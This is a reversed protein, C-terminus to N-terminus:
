ANALKKVARTLAEIARDVEEETTRKGVSLRLTGMAYEQPVRMAALVHSISVSDAHCAAGPSVALTDRLETMLANAAVNRFSVSLTNPLGQEPHGNFKLDRLRQQLGLRLRERLARMHKMNKELDRQAIECAQGLGAIELVNETGARRNKEHGAGHILKELQVGRGVFLAGVGKPAYLKHGAISLMDVGLDNVRVPAKGLSQAADCHFAIGARRAIAAIEAIPQLTGVENNAHMLSVLITQPTLATQFEAASVRGYEDVPLLTYQFGQRKLYELVEVVAPHEIASAIMHNGKERHAWAYGKIAYNNAESGGSTFIVEDVECGLLNAVQSRAKDIAQRTQQGFWHASSPNGFHETLYPLMAQAVESDLPTTANYDLYIPPNTM